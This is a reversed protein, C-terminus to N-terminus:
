SSASDEKVKLKSRRKKFAEFKDRFTFVYEILANTFDLIDRADELPVKTQLDHAAENGSIRLMDAWDFLRKEIIGSEKMSELRSILNKAKIKHEACIAELTKRCMIATATYAKARFCSRAENYVECVSTPIPLNLAKEESPYIRSPAEWGDGYNEEVVLIPLECKLCKLFSYRGPPGYEPNFSEFNAVVKADVLVEFNRCEIIMSKVKLFNLLM